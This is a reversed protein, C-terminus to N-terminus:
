LLVTGIYYLTYAPYHQRSVIRSGQKKPYHWKEEKPVMEYSEWVSDALFIARILQKVCLLKEFGRGQGNRNVQYRM